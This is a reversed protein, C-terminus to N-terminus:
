FSLHYIPNMLDRGMRIRVIIPADIPSITGALVAHWTSTQRIKPSRHVTCSTCSSRLPDQTPPFPVINAANGNPQDLYFTEVSIICVM